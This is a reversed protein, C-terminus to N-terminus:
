AALDRLLAELRRGYEVYNTLMAAADVPKAGTARYVVVM